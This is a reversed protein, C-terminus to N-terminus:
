DGIEKLSNTLADKEKLIYQVQEINSSSPEPEPFSRFILLFSLIILITNLLEYKVVEEMIKDEAIPTKANRKPMKNKGNVEVVVHNDDNQMFSQPTIGYKREILELAQLQLEVNKQCMMRKFM